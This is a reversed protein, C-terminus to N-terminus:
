ARALSAMPSFIGGKKSRRIQCDVAESLLSYLLDMVPIAIMVIKKKGKKTKKETPIRHDWRFGIENLYRPLHKISMYHFVGQKARELISNFSEATNNHVNGCAYEKASHNVSSHGAYHKGIQLYARNEDTMLYAEKQAFREVWPSLQAASDSDVLASRVAGQRQVAVLVPQKETGKGRKHKVGKEYRPKGGFYKEDLEVIGHLPPRSEAGPEMLKRIAHGMKWATKQAVGVWKAMFVSSVGKSSNVMLYMCLLWKWLPLKTSHMPTRTTVTFQRKCEDCEYLGSRSSKGSLRYSKACGCHPCLRGNRWIISEFFQRCANEDPFRAKLQDIDM